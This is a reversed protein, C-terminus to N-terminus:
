AYMVWLFQQGLKDFDYVIKGLEDKRECYYCQEVNKNLKILVSLVIVKVQTISDFEGCLTKAPKAQVVIDLICYAKHVFETELPVSVVVTTNSM